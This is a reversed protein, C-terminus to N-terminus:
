VMSLFKDLAKLEDNTSLKIRQRGRENNIFVDFLNTNPNFYYGMVFRTGSM